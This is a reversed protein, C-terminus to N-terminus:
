GWANSTQPASAPPAAAPAASGSPQLWTISTPLRLGTAAKAFPPSCPPLVPCGIVPSLPNCWLRTKSKGNNPSLISVSTRSPPVQVEDADERQALLLHCWPRLVPQQPPVLTSRPTQHSKLPQGSAATTAAPCMPQLPRGSTTPAYQPATAQARSTRQSTPTGRCQRAGIGDTFALSTNAAGITTPLPLCSGANILTPKSQPQQPMNHNDTDFQKVPRTSSLGNLM